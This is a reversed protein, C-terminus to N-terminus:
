RAAKLLYNPRRCYQRGKAHTEIQEPPHGHGQRVPLVDAAKDQPEPVSHGSRPECLGTFARSKYVPVPSRPNATACVLHPSHRSPGSVTRRRRGIWSVHFPSVHFPSVRFPLYRAGGISESLMRPFPPALLRRAKAYRKQRWLGCALARHPGGASVKGGRV